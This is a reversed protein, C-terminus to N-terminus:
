NDGADWDLSLICGNELVVTIKEETHIWPESCRGDSNKGLIWTKPFSQWEPNHGESVRLGSPLLQSHPSKTLMVWVVELIRLPFLHVHQLCSLSTHFSSEPGFCKPTFHKRFTHQFTHGDESPLCPLGPELRVAMRCVLRCYAVLSSQFSVTRSLHAPTLDQYALLLSQSLKFSFSSLAELSLSWLWPPRPKNHHATNIPTPLPTRLHAPNTPTHWQFLREREVNGYGVEHASKKKLDKWCM